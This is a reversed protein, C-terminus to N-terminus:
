TCSVHGSAQAKKLTQIVQQFEPDGEQLTGAYGRNRIGNISEVALEMVVDAPNGSEILNLISAPPIPNTLNRTFESGTQPAYSITPRDIMTQTERLDANLANFLFGQPNVQTGIGGATTRGHEYGNVISSVDVFEPMDVYRLRVINLLTQQKWSTAIAENYSLRDDMITRPGIHHCGSLGLLAIAIVLNRFRPLKM